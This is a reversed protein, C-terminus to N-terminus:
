LVEMTCGGLLYLFTMHVRAQVRWVTAVLGTECHKAGLRSFVTSVAKFKVGNPEATM